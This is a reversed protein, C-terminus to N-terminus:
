PGPTNGHLQARDERLASGEQRQSNVHGPAGGGGGGLPRLLLAWGVSLALVAGWAPCDTLDRRCFSASHTWHGFSLRQVFPSRYWKRPFRFNFRDYHGPQPQAWSVSAEPGTQILHSNFKTLPFTCWGWQFRENHKISGESLLGGRNRRHLRLSHHNIWDTNIRELCNPSLTKWSVTQSISSTGSIPM